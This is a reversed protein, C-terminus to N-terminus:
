QVGLALGLAFRAFLIWYYHMHCALPVLITVLAVCLLGVRVVIRTGYMESLRGGPVQTLIFGCFFYSSTDSKEEENWNYRLGYSVLSANSKNSIVMEVITISINLRLMHHIMFGLIVM